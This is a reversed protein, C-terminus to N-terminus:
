SNVSEIGRSTGILNQMLNKNLLKGVHGNKVNNAKVSWYEMDVDLVKASGSILSGSTHTVWVHDRQFPQLVAYLWYIKNESKGKPDRGESLMRVHKWSNHACIREVCCIQVALLLAGNNTKVHVTNFYIACVSCPNKAHISVNVKEPIHM